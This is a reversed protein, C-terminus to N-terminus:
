PLRGREKGPAQNGETKQSARVMSPVGERTGAKRSRDLGKGLGQIGEGDGIAEGQLATRRVPKM